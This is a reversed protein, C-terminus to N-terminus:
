KKFLGGIVPVGDLLGPKKETVVDNKNAMRTTRWLQYLGYPYSWLETAPAFEKASTVIDKYASLPAAAAATATRMSDNFSQAQANATANAISDLAKGTVSSNIVGRQALNNVTEGMTRNMVDTLAKQMNSQYEGPLQGQGIQKLSDLSWQPINQNTVQSYMQNRVAMDQQVAKGFDDLVSTAAPTLAQRLAAEYGTEKPTTDVVKTESKGFLGGM